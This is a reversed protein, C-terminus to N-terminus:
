RPLSCAAAAADIATPAGELLYRDSMRRGGIDRAEVRLGSAARMAAIIAAEQASDKSWASAGSAVLMFPQDGITLIVSSRPRVPRRLQASFQGHRPGSRDFAIAAFPALEQKKAPLLPQAVAECSQGRDFSAWSGGSALLHSPAAAAATALMCASLVAARIM